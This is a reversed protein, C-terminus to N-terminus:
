KGMNKRFPCMCCCCCGCCCYLFFVKMVNACVCLLLNANDRLAILPGLANILWLRSSSAEIFHFRYAWYLVNVTLVFFWSIFYIFHPIRAPMKYDSLSFLQRIVDSFFRDVKASSGDCGYQLIAENEENGVSSYKCMQVREISICNLTSYKMWVM